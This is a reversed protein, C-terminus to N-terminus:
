ATLIKRGRKNEYMRHDAKRVAIALNENADFAYVGWAVALDIPQSVGPLRQKLLDRDMALLRATLETEMGGIMVIAFEDGGIRFIPDTVRFKSLLARAVLKLAADGAPHLHADNIMKLDNLDLIALCGPSHPGDTDSILEDFARRNYLGTLADRRADESLKEAADHLCRNKAELEDRVRETILILVGVVLILQVLANYVPSLVTYEFEERGLYTHLYMAPGNHLLLVVLAWVGVRVIPMGVSPQAVSPRYGRIDCLAGILPLALLPFHFPFLHRYTPVTWPLVLGVLAYPVLGWWIARHLPRGHIYGRLCSWFLFAALSTSWCYATLALRTAPWLTDDYVAFSLCCIGFALSAASFFWRFVFPTYLARRFQWLLSAVIITGLAQVVVATFVYGM